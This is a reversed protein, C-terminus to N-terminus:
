EYTPVTSTGSIIKVSYASLRSTKFLDSMTYNASCIDNLVAFFLENIQSIKGENWIRTLTARTTGPTNFFSDSNNVDLFTLYDPVPSAGSDDVLKTNLITFLLTSVVLDSPALAQDSEFGFRTRTGNREDYAARRPSPLTNGAADRACATDVLKNWLAEPIKTRQGARILTWEVHTDKLDLDRPDDRLTFNRTFRLKFTDDKTVVYSLGSITIADYKFPSTASMNQFTLYNQPGAILLQAISKVSLRKRKAATSRNKVWFYFKTASINGNSDRVPVSVYQYDVKYQTQILLNDRVDPNFVLEAASPTYSRIVAVIEAGTSVNLVTLKRGVLTYTGSLRAVGNVYVSIRDITTGQKVTLTSLSGVAVTRLSETKLEVWNSWSTAYPNIVTGNNLVIGATNAADKIVAIPVSSVSIFPGPLPYWESNPVISDANLQAQTPVIWARWGIGGQGSIDVNLNATDTFDNSLSSYVPGPVVSEIKAVDFLALKAALANSISLALASSNYTGSVRATVRIIIGFSPLEFSFVQGALTNVTAGHGSGVPNIGRDNRILVMDNFQTGPIQVTVYSAVDWENLAAGASDILQSSVDVTSTFLMRGTVPTSKEIILNVIFNGTVDTIPSFVTDGLNPTGIHKTFGTIINESLARLESPTDEFAGIRMGLVIGAQEFTGVDLALGEPVSVLTANYDASFSGRSGIMGGTHAAEVPVGARSWAVPRIQWTRDRSYTKAGYVNGDAKTYPDLDANGSDLIAQADYNVPRVSSEVWEIVDVTAYDALTGWRALREDVSNFITHDYYPVYELNSTDLWVRGIEKAGWTHLPDFNANGAVQTSVNYKAPDISSIINVSELAIPTHQGAAPNWVPIEDVLEGAIYNFLKVPNFKPTAPGYGLVKLTGPTSINFTSGNLQVYSCTGSIVLKDAIFPLVIQRVPVIEDYTGVLEAEFSTDGNLDELSFWRNEDSASIQSFGLIPTSSDFQLRTFQQLTDDVSLKLEPFIKDRSDGYEAIKYAWYEDLYADQFRNNNLFADISSNTGKMQILGRWFNFQTRDTLDLDSMYSKPSFGLLALAHKTSIEDEFAHDADYYTAIKDVSAQINRKVQDGVLYHGGFEPRLTQAAQRRGNLKITAIRGGTFPDYILGENTSPSSLNNFVFLHEYEDLQVHVSFMPTSAGIQSKSRSRLVTLDGTNIKSGLADFIGPHGAIDFLATDFFKSLLGTDQEIWVRDMFPNMVHGQGLAIGGYVRDVLKEIELQWSRARGTEADINSIGDDNFKWGQETIRKIYGFVFDIVNQLGTITLPLQTIVPTGTIETPQTFTRVTNKSDLANFTVRESTTAFRYYEIGLYRANYGDVRFIWDEANASPVFEIGNNRHAGVQVVSIRMGQLWLDRAYPSRKFRLTYSSEPLTDVDNFVRLDDTSVLGGARYGLNVSWGSYAQVAYGQKTDISGERLAHTFAQGFGHFLAEVAPSFVYNSGSGDTNATFTFSDGVRFPRGEDELFLNTISYGEASLTNLIGERAYGIFKGTSTKISFSQNRNATYGTRTLILNVATPGTISDVMLSSARSVAPLKDGHLRFRAHGPVSIDFGDYLISDVEVWEFGWCYELFALPAHRFLAKAMSYRFEVSKVWVTEVPSGEGFTYPAAPSMPMVNTLAYAATTLTGNVYPPLLTDHFIDVSLKLTPHAAQIDAWMSFKWERVQAFMVPSVGVIGVVSTLAWQTDNWLQGALIPIVLNLALVDAARTWGGVAVIWVGNNQAASESVLLVRQGATLVISDITPLGSLSTTLATSSFLVAICAAGSIYGNTVDTVMSPTIASKYTADWSSPKINNGLLKWPELNPRSTVFVGAVSSQHAQLANYWRAPISGGVVSAFSLSPVSSYNWKFPDTSVYDPATPDYGNSVAWTALEKKLQSGLVGRLANHVSADDFFTRQEANIGNFLRNEIELLLDNLREAPDFLLWAQLVDSTAVWTSGNWRYLQSANRDYWFQGTATATPAQATDSLVNFVRLVSGNTNNLWLEGRYPNTPASSSYSGVAATYTGNPRKILTGPSLLRERFQQNLVYLPTLHGDHARLLEAGLENDFVFGPAALPSVGLEPLTPPFGIVASTSDYLVSRVDDDKARISLLFDLYGSSDSKSILARNDAMYQLLHKFYLDVITNVGTEYQRQALDIVSIPTLDRQMLLSALLNQQASWLKISGGFARNEQTSALQNNLIGRFHSYLTGEPIQGNNDAGVNNFFMRPVQWAGVKATDAAAGGPADFILGDPERKVYRTTEFNGIRFTFTDGFEFATSGNSILCTFLGNSFTNGVTVIQSDTESLKSGFIKFQSNSIAVATWVQQPNFQDVITIVLVGNGVGSFHQDIVQANSYGPHWITHLTTSM